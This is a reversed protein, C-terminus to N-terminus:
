RGHTRAERRVLAPRPALGRGLCLSAPLSSAGAALLWTRDAGRLDALAVRIADTPNFFVLHARRRRPPRHRRAANAQADAEHTPQIAM